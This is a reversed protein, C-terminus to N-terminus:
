ERIRQLVAEIEEARDPKLEGARELHRITRPLDGGDAALGALLRYVRYEGPASDLAKGLEEKAAVGEGSEMMLFARLYRAAFAVPELRVCTDLEERAGSADRNEMHIFARLLHM